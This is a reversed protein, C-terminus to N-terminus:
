APVGYLMRDLVSLSNANTSLRYVGERGNRGREVIELMGDSVLTSIATGITSPNSIGVELGADTMKFAARRNRAYALIRDGAKPVQYSWGKATTARPAEALYGDRVLQSLATGISTYKVGSGDSLSKRTLEQNHNGNAFAMIRQKNTPKGANSCAPCGVGKLHTRAVLEFDGHEYCTIVLKSTSRSYDTRTYGYRNGHAARARAIFTATKDQKIQSMLTERERTTM